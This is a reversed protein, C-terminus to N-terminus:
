EIKMIKNARYELKESLVKLFHGSLWLIDAVFIKINYTRIKYEM